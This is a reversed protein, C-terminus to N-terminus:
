CRGRGASGAPARARSRPLAQRQHAGGIGSNRRHDIREAADDCRQREAGFAHEVRRQRPRDRRREIRADPSAGAPNDQDGATTRANRDATARRANWLLWLSAARAAYFHDTHRASAVAKADGRLHQLRASSYGARSFQPVCNNRSKRSRLNYRSSFTAISPKSAHCTVSQATLNVNRDLRYDCLLDNHRLLGGIRDVLMHAAAHAHAPHHQAHALFLEAVRETQGELLHLFVLLAGVADARAPQLLDGCEAPAPKM